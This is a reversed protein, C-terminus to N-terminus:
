SSWARLVPLPLLWQKGKKVAGPIDGAAAKNRWTSAAGGFQEAAEDPTCFDCPAVAWACFLALVVDRDDSDLVSVFWDMDDVTYFLHEDAATLATILGVFAATIDNRRKGPMFVLDFFASHLTWFPVDAHRERWAISTAAVRIIAALNNFHKNRLVQSFKM